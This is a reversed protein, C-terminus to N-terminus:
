RKLLRSGVWGLLLGAGIGVGFAVGLAPGIHRKASHEADDVLEEATHLGHRVVRKATDMGGEVADAVLARLRAVEAATDEIQEELKDKVATQM